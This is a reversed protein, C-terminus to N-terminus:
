WLDDQDFQKRIDDPYLSRGRRVSYRMWCVFLVTAALTLVLSM